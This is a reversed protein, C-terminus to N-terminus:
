FVEISFNLKLYSCSCKQFDSTSLQESSFHQLPLCIPLQLPYIYFNSFNSIACTNEAETFLCAERQGLKGGHVGRRVSTGASTEPHHNLVSLFLSDYRLAMEAISRLVDFM